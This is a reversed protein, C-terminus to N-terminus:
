KGLFAVSNGLGVNTGLGLPNILSVVSTYNSSFIPLGITGVNYIGPSYLLKLGKSKRNRFKTDSDSSDSNSSSDDDDDNDLDYKKYKSGGGTKMDVSSADDFDNNEFAHLAEKNIKRSELRKLKIGVKNNKAIEESVKYHSFAGSESNKITFYFNPTCNKINKSFKFWIDKAANKRSSENSTIDSGGELFPNTLTFSM